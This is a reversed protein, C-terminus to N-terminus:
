VVETHQCTEPGVSFIYYLPIHPENRCTYTGVTTKFSSGKVVVAHGDTRGDCNTVVQRGNHSGLAFGSVASKPRVPLFDL